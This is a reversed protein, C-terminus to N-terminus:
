GPRRPREHRLAAGGAGCRRAPREGFQGGSSTVRADGGGDGGEGSEGVRQAPGARGPPSGTLEAVPGLMNLCGFATHATAKAQTTANM